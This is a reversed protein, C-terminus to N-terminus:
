GLRTRALSTWAARFQWMCDAHDKGTGEAEVERKPVVTDIGWTWGPTTGVGHHVGISGIEIEDDDSKIVVRYGDRAQPNIVKRLFLDM